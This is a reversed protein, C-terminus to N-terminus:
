WCCWVVLGIVMLLVHSTTDYCNMLYLLQPRWNKISTPRPMNRGIPKKTCQQGTSLPMAHGGLSSYWLAWRLIGIINCGVDKSILYRMPRRCSLKNVLWFFSVQVCIGQTHEWFHMYPTSLIHFCTGMQLWLGWRIWCLM